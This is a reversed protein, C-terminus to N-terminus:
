KLRNRSTNKAKSMIKILEDVEILLRELEQTKSSLPVEKILELWFETEDAEEVVICIKSYFENDSRARCASRYNAATSTASKVIQYTVVSTAKGPVLTDCFRIIDVAFKKTRTKLQEVFERKSLEM